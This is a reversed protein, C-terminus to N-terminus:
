LYYKVPTTSGTIIAGGGLREGPPRAYLTVGNREQEEVIMARVIEREIAAVICRNLSIHLKKATCRVQKLLDDEIYVSHYRKM